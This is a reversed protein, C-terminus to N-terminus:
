KSFKEIRDAVMAEFEDLSTGKTTVTAKHLPGGKRFTWQHYAFEPRDPIQNVFADYTLGESEYRKKIIEIEKSVRLDKWSAFKGKIVFGTDVVDKPDINLKEVLHPHNVVSKDVAIEGNKLRVAWDREAFSDITEGPPYSELKEFKEIKPITKKATRIRLVPVRDIGLKEAALMRHRGEQGFYRKNGYELGPMPFKAGEEMEKAYKRVVEPDAIDRFARGVERQFDIKREILNFYEEPSMFDISREIGKAKKHYAPKKLINDWLPVDTTKLNFPFKGKGLGRAIKTGGGLGAFAMQMIEEDSFDLPRKFGKTTDAVTRKVIDKLFDAYGYSAAKETEPTQRFIAAM